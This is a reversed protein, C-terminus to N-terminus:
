IGHVPQHVIRFPRQRFADAFRHRHARTEAQQVRRLNHARGYTLRLRLVHRRQFRLLVLHHCAFPWGHEERRSVPLKGYGIAKGPHLRLFANEVIVRLHDLGSFNRQGHILSRNAVHQIIPNGGFRIQGFRVRGHHPPVRLAVLNFGHHRVLGMKGLHERSLAFPRFRPLGDGRFGRLGHQLPPVFGGVGVLQHPGQRCFQGLTAPHFGLLLQGIPELFVLSVRGHLRCLICPQFLLALGRPESLFLHIGLLRGLTLRLHRGPLLHLFFQFLLRQNLSRIVHHRVHGVLSVRRRQLFQVGPIVAVLKVDLHRQLRRPVPLRFAILPCLQILLQRPFVLVVRSIARVLARFQEVRNGLKAPQGMAIAPSQRRFQLGQALADTCLHPIEKAGPLRLADVSDPVFQRVLAKGEVGRVIQQLRHVM